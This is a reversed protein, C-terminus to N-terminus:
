IIKGNTKWALEHKKVHNTIMLLPMLSKDKAKNIVQELPKEFEKREILKSLENAVIQEVETKAEPNGLKTKTQGEFQVSKMKISLIVSIGERFDEGLLNQDKEKLYNNKRAYDNLVKTLAMKLGTEHTGGETTPINNVFSFINESYGDTYSIACELKVVKSTGEIYLCPEFLTSKGSNTYKSFDILGGDYKFLINFNEREDNLEIALGKNLFALEKLRKSVIDKSFICDDFITDDPLFRVLTGKKKTTGIEKLPSLTIGGHVKGKSDEKLGFEIAYEKGGKFVNVKCWKSLANVVSAGVGHLGGSYSYNENNFKGGAHLQTFVVEVGSKKLTPHMDVPIGRGNDEVSVSNDKHLTVVIKDAYNNSAEDIANDVIEWLLHHLGKNGTTGIYMGPRLRVADLGELVLIDKSEYSKAM